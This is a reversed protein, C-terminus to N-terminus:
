KIEVSEYGSIEVGLRLSCNKPQIGASYEDEGELWLIITIRETQGPKFNEYDREILVNDSVYQKAFGCYMETGLEGAIPKNYTPNGEEDIRMKSSIKAYTSYEHTDTDVNNYLRIRSLDLLDYTVNDPKINETVKLSFTFDVVEEGTNKIFFTYKLFYMFRLNGDQDKKAGYTYDTSDSDLKSDDTFKVASYMSMAPIDGVRLYTTPNELKANDFLSLETKGRSTVAVTFSGVRQGIFAIIIFATMVCSSIGAVIAAIKKKRRRKVANLEVM